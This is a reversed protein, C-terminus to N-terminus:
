SRCAAPGVRGGCWRTQTSRPTSTNSTPAPLTFLRPVWSVVHQPDAAETLSSLIDALSWQTQYSLPYAALFGPVARPDSSFIEGVHETTVNRRYWHSHATWERPTVMDM